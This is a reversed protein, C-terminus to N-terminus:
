DAAAGAMRDCALDMRSPMSAASVQAAMGARMQDLWDAAVFADAKTEMESCARELWAAMSFSAAIVAPMPPKPAAAPVGRVARPPERAPAANAMAMRVARADALCAMVYARGVGYRRACMEPAWGDLHVADEIQRTLPPLDSLTLTAAQMAASM